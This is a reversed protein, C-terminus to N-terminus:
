GIIEMALSKLRDRRFRAIYLPHYDMIVPISAVKLDRISKWAVRSGLALIRNPKLVEIEFRLIDLCNRRMFELDRFSPPRCKIATTWFVGHDILIGVVESESVNFAKALVNRLRDRCNLNYIYSDKFGPPPSESIVLTKVKSPLFRHYIMFKCPPKDIFKCKHCNEIAEHLRM